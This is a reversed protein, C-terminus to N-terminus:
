SGLNMGACSLRPTVSPMPMVSFCPPESTRALVVRASGLPPAGVADDAV